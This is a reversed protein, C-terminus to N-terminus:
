RMEIYNQWIFNQLRNVQEYRNIKIDKQMRASSIVNLFVLYLRPVYFYKESKPLRFVIEYDRVISPSYVIMKEFDRTLDQHQPFIEFGLHEM